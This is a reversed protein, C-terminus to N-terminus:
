VPLLLNSNSQHKDNAGQLGQDMMCFLGALKRGTDCDDANDTELGEDM